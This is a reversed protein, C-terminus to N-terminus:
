EVYAVGVSLFDEAFTSTSGGGVIKIANYKRYADTSTLKMSILAAQLQEENTGTSYEAALEAAEVARNIDSQDLAVFKSLSEIM